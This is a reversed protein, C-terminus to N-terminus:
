DNVLTRRLRAIEPLLAVLLGLQQIVLPARTDPSNKMESMRQMLAQQMETAQTDTVQDIQLVDEIFCVADDLLTLL